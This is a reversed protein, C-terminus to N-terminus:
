LIGKAGGGWPAVGFYRETQEWSSSIMKADGMDRAVDINTAIVEPTIDPDFMGDSDFIALRAVRGAGVNYIEGTITLERSCLYGVMASVKEPQFYTRYWLAV